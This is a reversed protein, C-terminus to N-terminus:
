GKLTGSTEGDRFRALTREAEGVMERVIEGAPKVDRVLGVGQGMLWPMEEWDAETGPVPPLVNFKRLVTPEGQFVTTGHGGAEWGQAVVVEVGDEVAREAADASGVQEWVSVGAARLQEIQHAPPHGWHFSVAPVREEVCVQLQETDDFYTILNIHFPAKGAGARIEHIIERLRDAPMLAAGVAGIGGANSVAVALESTGAAFAMGACVFPYPVAFKETLRTSLVGM